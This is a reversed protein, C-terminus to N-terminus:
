PLCVKSHDGIIRTNMSKQPEKGKHTSLVQSNRRALLNPCLHCSTQSQIHSERGQWNQLFLSGHHSSRRPAIGSALLESHGQAFLVFCYYYYFLSFPSIRMKAVQLSAEETVGWIVSCVGQSWGTSGLVYPLWAQGGSEWFGHSLLHIIKLVWNTTINNHLSWYNMYTTFLLTRTKGTGFVIKFM